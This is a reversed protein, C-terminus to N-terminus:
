SFLKKWWPRRAHEQLRTAADERNMKEYVVSMLEQHHRDMEQEFVKRVFGAHAIHLRSENSNLLCVEQEPSLNILPPAFTSPEPSHACWLRAQVSDDDTGRRATEYVSGNPLEFLDRQQLATVKIITSM